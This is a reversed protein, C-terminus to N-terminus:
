SPTFLNDLLTTGQTGAAGFVLSDGTLPLSGANTTTWNGVTGFDANTTSGVWTDTAARAQRGDALMAGVEAAMALIRKRHRRYVVSNSAGSRNMSGRGSKENRMIQGEAM